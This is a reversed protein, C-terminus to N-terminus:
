SAVGAAAEKIFKEYGNTELEEALEQGGSRVIRGGVFVHV